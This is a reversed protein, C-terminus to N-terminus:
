RGDSMVERVAIVGGVALFILKWWAIGEAKQQLTQCGAPPYWTRADGWAPSAMQPPCQQPSPEPTCPAAYPSPAVQPADAIERQQEQTLDGLSRRRRAM